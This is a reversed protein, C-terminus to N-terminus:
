LNTVPKNDPGVEGLHDIVSGCPIEKGDPWVRCSAFLLSLRRAVHDLPNIASMM